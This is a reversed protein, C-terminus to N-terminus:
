LRRCVAIISSSVRGSGTPAAELVMIKDRDSPSAECEEEYTSYLYATTSVFEAACTDVRKYVPRVGLAHRAQFVEEEPVGLLQAMRKDSFGKRKLSRMARQDLESLQQTQLLEESKILDEIQILFWPDIGSLDFVTAM